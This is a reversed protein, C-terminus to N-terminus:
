LLFHTGQELRKWQFQGILPVVVYRLFRCRYFSEPNPFGWWELLYYFCLISRAQPLPYTLLYYDCSIRFYSSTSVVGRAKAAMHGWPHQSVDRTCHGGLYATDLAMDSVHLGRQRLIDCRPYSIRRHLRCLCHYSALRM